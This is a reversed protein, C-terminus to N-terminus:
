HLVLPLFVQRWWSTHIDRTDWVMVKWYYRRSAQLGAGDYEVQISQDSSVRQSDWLNGLDKEIQALSDAVLVRYASQRTQRRNSVLQWSLRPEGVDIGVPNTEYECHLKTISLNTTM